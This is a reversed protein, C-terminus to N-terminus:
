RASKSVTARSRRRGLWAFPALLTKVLSAPVDPVALECQFESLFLALESLRPMRLGPIYRVVSMDAASEFMEEMRLAPRAEVLAHAVGEGANGFWHATGPPVIVTDGPRAVITRHGLLGLRFRMRGAIVTFREEQGPHVHRAPVHARPPLYLDFSLLRGGTQAGSKRIVIHEGSIPNDIVHGTAAPWEAM